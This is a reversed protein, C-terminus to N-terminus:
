SSLCPTVLEYIMGAESSTPCSLINFLVGLHTRNLNLNHFMKQREAQNRACEMLIHYVDEPKDCVECNPSSVKGMMYAFKRLPIHGSRLRHAVVVSKRNVNGVFWPSRHPQSQMIKYWVGKSKSREDFYEKWIVFCKDKFKPIIESHSPLIFIDSGDTVASKALRDVEENGLIGIHSPIWQLKVCISHENIKHLKRLINYAVSFGRNGTTCHLIHQLASKSDSLIVINKFSGINETYSLAASIAFLELTM